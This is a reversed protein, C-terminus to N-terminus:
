LGVQTNHVGPLRDRQIVYTLRNFTLMLFTEPVCRPEKRSELKKVKLGKVM